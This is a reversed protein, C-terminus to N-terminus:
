LHIKKPKFHSPIASSIQIQFTLLHANDGSKRGCFSKRKLRSLYTPLNAAKFQVVVVSGFGFEKIFETNTRFDM